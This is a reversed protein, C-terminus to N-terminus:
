SGGGGAYIKTGEAVFKFVVVKAVAVEDGNQLEVPGRGRIDVGNVYTGNKSGLDEIFWKGGRRTIRFHRASIYPLFREDVFGRLGERGFEAGNEVPVRVGGPLELYALEEPLVVTSVPGRPAAERRAGAVEGLGIYLLLAGIFGLPILLVAGVKVLSNNYDSGLRYLGIVLFVLGVLAALGAGVVALLFAVALALSQVFLGVVVLLAAAILALFAYTLIQAGTAVPRYREERGLELAGRRLFYFGVFGVVAGVLLLPPFFVSGITVANAVLYLLMSLRVWYIASM